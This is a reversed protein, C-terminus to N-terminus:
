FQYNGLLVQLTALSADRAMGYHLSMEVLGVVVSVKMSIWVQESQAEYEHAESDQRVLPDMVDASASMANNNLPPIVNPTESFNSLACESIIHYEKNSLSVKLEDIQFLPVVCM